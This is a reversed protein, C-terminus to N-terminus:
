NEYIIRGTGQADGNKVQGEYINQYSPFDLGQDDLFKM